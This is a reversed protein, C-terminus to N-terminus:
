FFLGRKQEKQAVPEVPAAQARREKKKGSKKKGHRDKDCKVKRGKYDQDSYQLAVHHYGRMSGLSRESLPERHKGCCDDDCYGWKKGSSNCACAALFVMCALPLLKKM